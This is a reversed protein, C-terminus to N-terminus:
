PGSPPPPPLPPQPRHVGRQARERFGQRPRAPGGPPGPRIGRGGARSGPMMRSPGAGPRAPGDGRHEAKGAPGSPQYEGPGDGGPEKRERFARNGEADSDLRELPGGRGDGPKAGRLAGRDRVEAPAIKPREHGAVAANDGHAEPRGMHELPVGDKPGTVTRTRAEKVEYKKVRQVQLAKAQPLAKKMLGRLAAPKFRLPTTPGDMGRAMVSHYGARALVARGEKLDGESKAFHVEGTVTYLSVTLDKERGALAEQNIAAVFETGRVGMVAASTKVLFPEQGSYVKNVIVKIAGRALGLARTLLGDAGKQNWNELTVRAQPGVSLESGEDLVITLNQKKLTEIVDGEYVACGVCAARAGAAGKIMVPAGEAFTAATIKGIPTTSPEAAFVTLVFLLAHM